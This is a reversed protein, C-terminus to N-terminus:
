RQPMKVSSIVGEENFFRNRQSRVDGRRPEKRVEM